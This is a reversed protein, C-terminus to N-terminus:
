FFNYCALRSANKQKTSKWGLDPHPIHFNIRHSQNAKLPFFLINQRQGLSWSCDGEGGGKRGFCLSHEPFLHNALLIFLNHLSPLLRAELRRAPPDRTDFFRLMHTKTKTSSFLPDLFFFSTLVVLHPLLFFFGWRLPTHAFPWLERMALAFCPKRKSKKNAVSKVALHSSRSAIWQGVHCQNKKKEEHGERKMKKGWAWLSAVEQWASDSLSTM